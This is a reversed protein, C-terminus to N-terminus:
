AVGLLNFLWSFGAGVLWICVVIFLVFCCDQIARVGLDRFYQSRQLNKIINSLSM